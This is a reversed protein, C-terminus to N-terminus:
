STTWVTRSFNVLPLALPDGLWRRREVDNRAAPSAGAQQRHDKVGLEALVLREIPLAFAIGTLCRDRRTSGPRNPRPRCRSGRGAPRASGGAREGGLTDM